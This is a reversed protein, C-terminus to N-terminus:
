VLPALMAAMQELTDAQANQTMSVNFILGKESDIWAIYGAGEDSLYITADCKGIQCSATSDWEYYLGSIDVAESADSMDMQDAVQARFCYEQGDLTFDAQALPHDDNTLDIVSYTVDTAEAPVALSVGASSYQEAQSVEHVPNAIQEEQTEQSACGALSFLLLGFLMPIIFRKM